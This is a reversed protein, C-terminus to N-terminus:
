PITTSSLNELSILFSDLVIHINKLQKYNFRIVRIGNDECFDNKLKDLYQIKEFREPTFFNGTPKFHQEGDYEIYFDYDPLYMDFRLNCNTEPNVLSPIIKEQEYRISNKDLFKKIAKIGRSNNLSSCNPCRFGQKFNNWNVYYTSECETHKFLMKTKSNVYIDELLEYEDGVKIFIESKIDDLSRKRNKVCYPCGSGNRINNPTASFEKGCLTHKFTTHTHISQYEGTMILDTDIEDLLKTFKDKTVIGRKSCHPCRYGSIFNAPSVSYTNDCSIHKVKIKTAMNIYEEIFVYEDKVLTLVRDTFEENTLKRSM